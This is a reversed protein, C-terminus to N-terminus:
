ARAAARLPECRDFRSVRDLTPLPLPAAQGARYHEALFGLLRQFIQTGAAPGEEHGGSPRSFLEAAGCGCTWAAPM